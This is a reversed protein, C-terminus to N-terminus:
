AAQDKRTCHTSDHEAGASTWFRECCDHQLDERARDQWARMRVARQVRAAEARAAARREDAHIYERALAVLLLLSVIFLGAAYWTSGTGDANATTAACHGTFGAAAIYHWRLIRSPPTM